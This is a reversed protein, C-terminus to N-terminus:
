VELGAINNVSLVDSKVNRRFDSSRFLCCINGSCYSIEELVTM